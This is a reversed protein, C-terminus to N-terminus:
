MPNKRIKCIPARAAIDAPRNLKFNQKKATAVGATQRASREGRSIGLNLFHVSGVPIHKLAPLETPRRM